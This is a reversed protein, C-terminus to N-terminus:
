VAAAALLVIKTIRPMAPEKLRSAPVPSYVSRASM